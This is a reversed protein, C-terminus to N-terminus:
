DDENDFLGSYINQAVREFGYWALYNYLPSKDKFSGLVNYGTDETDNEIIEHIDEFHKKYFEFTDSCYTLESVVGSECGHQLLDDLWSKLDKDNAANDLIIDICAIKLDSEFNDRIQKLENIKTMNMTAEKM